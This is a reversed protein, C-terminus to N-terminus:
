INQFCCSIAVKYLCYINSFDYCAEASHLFHPTFLEILLKYLFQWTRCCFVLVAEKPKASDFIPCRYDGEVKEKVRIAVYMSKSTENSTLTNLVIEYQVINCNCVVPWIYTCNKAYIVHCIFQEAQAYM